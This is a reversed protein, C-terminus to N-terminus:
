ADPLLQHRRPDAERRASGAPDPLGLLRHHARGAPDLRSGRTAILRPFVMYDVNSLNVVTEGWM